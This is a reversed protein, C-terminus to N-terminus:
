AAAEMDEGEAFGKRGSKVEGAQLVGAFLVRRSQNLISRRLGHVARLGAAAKPPHCGQQRPSVFSARTVGEERVAIGCCAALVCRCCAARLGRAGGESEERGSIRSQRQEPARIQEPMFNTWILSLSYM